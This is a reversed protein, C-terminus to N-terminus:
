YACQCKENLQIVKEVEASPILNQKAYGRLFTEVTNQRLRRVKDPVNFYPTELALIKTSMNAMKNNEFGPIIAKKIFLEHQQRLNQLDAMIREFRKEPPYEEINYRTLGGIYCAFTGELHRKFHQEGVAWSVCVDSFELYYRFAYAFIEEFRKTNPAKILGKQQFISICQAYANIAGEADSKFPISVVTKTGDKKEVKKLGWLDPYKHIDFLAQQFSDLIFDGAWGGKTQRNDYSIKGIEYMQAFFISFGTQDLALNAHDELDDLVDKWKKESAIEYGCYENIFNLQKISVPQPYEESATIKSKNDFVPKRNKENQGYTHSNVSLFLLVAIYCYVLKM